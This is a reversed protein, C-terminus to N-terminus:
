SPSPCVAYPRPLSQMSVAILVYRSSPVGGGAPLVQSQRGEAGGAGGWGPSTRPVGILGTSKAGSSIRVQEQPFAYIRLM